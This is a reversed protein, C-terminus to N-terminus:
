LTSTLNKVLTGLATYEEFAKVDIQCRVFEPLFLWSSTALVFGATLPGSVLRPLRCRATLAKKLAIEVTLCLGHLVFFCTMRFTPELRGMYYLILEHMLGSVVFTGLVAPLPAWKPGVVHRAAKLTPEYVTPRMISTVM